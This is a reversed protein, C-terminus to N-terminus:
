YYQGRINHSSNHAVLRRTSVGARTLDHVQQPRRTVALLMWPLPSVGWLVTMSIEMRQERISTGHSLGASGVTAHVRYHPLWRHVCIRVHSSVGRSSLFGAGWVGLFTSRADELCVPIWSASSVATCCSVTRQATHTPTHATRPLLTRPLPEFHQLHPTM